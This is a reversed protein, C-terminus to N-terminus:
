QKESKEDKQRDTQNVDLHQAVELPSVWNELKKTINDTILIMAIIKVVRNYSRHEM